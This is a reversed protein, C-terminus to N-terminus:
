GFNFCLTLIIVHIETDTNAMKSYYGLLEELTSDSTAKLRRWGFCELCVRSSIDDKVYDTPSHLKWSVPKLDPQLHKLHNFYHDNLAILM